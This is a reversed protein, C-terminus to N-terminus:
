APMGKIPKGGEDFLNWDVLLAPLGAAGAAVNGAVLKGYYKAKDWVGGQQAKYWNVVDERKAIEKDLSDRDPFNLYSPPTAGNNSTRFQEQATSLNHQRTQRLRWLEDKARVAAKLEPTPNDPLDIVTGDSMQVSPM